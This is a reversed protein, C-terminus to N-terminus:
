RRLYNAIKKCILTLHKHIAQHTISLMSGIEEETWGEMYLALVRKQKDTLGSNKIGDEVDVLISVIEMNPKFDLEAKLSFYFRLLGKITETNAYDVAHFRIEQPQPSYGIAM